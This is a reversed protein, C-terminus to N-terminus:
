TRNYHHDLMAQRAGMGYMRIRAVSYDRVTRRILVAALFMFGAIMGPIIAWALMFVSAVLQRSLIDIEDRPM